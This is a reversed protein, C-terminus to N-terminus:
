HTVRSPSISITALSPISGGVVINEVLQEPRASYARIPLFQSVTDVQLHCTDRRNRMSKNDFFRLMEQTLFKRADPDM